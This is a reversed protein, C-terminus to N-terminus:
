VEFQEGLSQHSNIAEQGKTEVKKPMKRYEARKAINLRIEKEADRGGSCGKRPHL